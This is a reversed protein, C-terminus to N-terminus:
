LKHDSVWVRLAPEVYGGMIIEAVGPITLFRDRVQDRVYTMLERKTLTDSTVSLWLIPRDEPNSKTVIPTDIDGPLRRQAQGLIAQVEQVAIDINKDLDFELTIDARGRKAESSISKIGDVSLLSSELQ